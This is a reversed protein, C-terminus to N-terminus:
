ISATRTLITPPHGLEFRDGIVASEYSGGVPEQTMSHAGDRSTAENHRCAILCAHQFILCWIRTGALTSVRALMASVRRHTTRRLRNSTREPDSADSERHGLYTRDVKYQLCKRVRDANRM